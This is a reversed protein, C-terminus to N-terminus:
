VGWADSNWQDIASTDLDINSRGADYAISNKLEDLAGDKNTVINMVGLSKAKLGKLDGDKCSIHFNWGEYNDLATESIHFPDRDPDRYQEGDATRRLIEVLYGGNEKIFEAENPFRVDTIIAIEPQEKHMRAALENVWVNPDKLRAVDTGYWQLIRTYGYIPDPKCAPVQQTQNALQWLPLLEDHHDRCYRKLEDAFAYLKAQPFAEQMYNSVYTKGQRAKYGLGVIIM